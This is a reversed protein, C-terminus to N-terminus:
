LQIKSLIQHKTTTLQIFKTNANLQMRVSFEISDLSVQVESLEGSINTAYEFHQVLPNAIFLRDIIQQKQNLQLCILSNSDKKSHNNTSQLKGKTIIKNIVDIELSKNVKKAKYNIFIIQPNTNIATNEIGSEIGPSKSPSCSILILILFIINSKM